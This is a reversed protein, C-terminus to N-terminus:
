GPSSCTARAQSPRDSAALAVEMPIARRRDLNSAEREALEVLSAITDLPADDRWVIATDVQPVSGPFPRARVGPSRETVASAQVVSIGLGQAVLDLITRKHEVAQSVRPTFGAERCLADVLERYGADGYRRCLVFNEDALQALDLLPATAYRHGDPVVIVLPERWLARVV